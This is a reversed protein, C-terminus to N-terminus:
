VVPRKRYGRFFDSFRLYVFLGTAHCLNLVVPLYSFMTSVSIISLHEDIPLPPQQSNHVMINNNTSMNGLFSFIEHMNLQLILCFVIYSNAENSIVFFAQYLRQTTRANRHYVEKVTPIM